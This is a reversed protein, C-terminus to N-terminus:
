PQVTPRSYDAFQVLQEETQRLGADANIALTDLEKKLTLCDTAHQTELRELVAFIVRNDAARRTETKQSFATIAISATKAAEDRAMQALQGRLDREVVARVKEADTHATTRGMAFGICLVIAAAAAWKVLPLFNTRRRKAVAPLKWSDLRGLSRQWSQIEDRCEACDDLHSELQRKRGADAEGFIFPVWEEREPHKMFCM